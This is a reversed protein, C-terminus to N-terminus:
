EQETTDIMERGARVGAPEVARYTAGLSTIWGDICTSVQSALRAEAEDVPGGM